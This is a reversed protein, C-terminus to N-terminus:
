ESQNFHDGIGPKVQEVYFFPETRSLNAQAVEVISGWKLENQVTKLTNADVFITSCAIGDIYISSYTTFNEGKVVVYEETMMEQEETEVEETAVYVDSIEILDIGMKLETPLFPNEQNYCYLNGYLMDYELQQLGNLYEEQGKNKQHYQNIVGSEIGIGSLVKSMLQYAELDEDEFELGMNNWIFYCTNYESETLLREETFGLSPLHDGYMVLITEEEFTSLTNVLDVIFEDMEHIQNLYYDISERQSENPLTDIFVDKVYKLNSPYSGHGQVSITFVFDQEETSNLAKMIQSTLINDKAWGTLNYDYRGLLMYEVSTFTQFGLNSFVQNRGYFDGTNNHIAHNVYGYESLIYPVSECTKELLITKYPYEGPGFDDLNMGTLLEFESNATGAGVCPMSLHGSANERMMRHLVPLPDTSFTMDVVETIDFFSELQVVIVNPTKADESPELPNLISVDGGITESEGELTANQDTQEETAVETPNTHSDQSNMTTQQVLGQIKDPNYDSPKKVGTNVVSTTFCYVFGNKKYSKSLEGFQVELEKVTIGIRVSAFTVIFILFVIGLMQLFPPRKTNLDTTKWLRILGLLCLVLLLAIVFLMPWSLYRNMIALCDSILRFDVASFPTVRFSLIIFNAVGLFLWVFYILSTWFIRKRLVLTVSVTLMIIMGNCFVRLPYNYYFLIGKILSRQGFCEIVFNIFFPMIFYLFLFQLKEPQELWNKIKLYLQQM